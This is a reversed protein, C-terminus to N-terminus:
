AKKRLSLLWDVVGIVGFLLIAYFVILLVTPLVRLAFGLVSLIGNRLWEPVAVFLVIAVVVVVVVGLIASADDKASEYSNRGAM